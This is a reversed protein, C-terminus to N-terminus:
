VLALSGFLGYYKDIHSALNLSFYIFPYLIVIYPQFLKVLSTLWIFGIHQWSQVRFLVYIGFYMLFVYVFPM